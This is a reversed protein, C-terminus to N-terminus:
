ANCDGKIQPDEGLFDKVGDLTLMCTSVSSLSKFKRSQPDIYNFDEIIKIFRKGCNIEEQLNIIELQCQQISTKFAMEMLNHDTAEKKFSIGEDLLKKLLKEKDQLGKLKYQYDAQEMRIDIILADCIDLVNSDGDSFERSIQVIFLQLVDMESISLDIGAGFDYEPNYNGSDYLSKKRKNSLVLWAKTIEEFLEKNVRRVEDSFIENLWKDPHYIHALKRHATKIQQQTADESVGLIRYYEKM